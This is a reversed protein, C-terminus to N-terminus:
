WFEPSGLGYAVLGPAAGSKPRFAGGAAGLKPRWRRIPMALDCYEGHVAGVQRFGRSRLRKSSPPAQGSEVRLLTSSFERTGVRAM